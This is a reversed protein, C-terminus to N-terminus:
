APKGKEYTKLSRPGLQEVTVVSAYVDPTVNAELAKLTTTAFKAFKAATIAKILKGISVVSVNGREGIALTFREGEPMFRESAAKSDFRARISTRLFEIRGLKARLPAFEKELAGLEDIDAALATEEASRAPASKAAPNKPM